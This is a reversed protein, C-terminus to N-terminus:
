VMRAIMIRDPTMIITLHDDTWNDKDVVLWAQYKGSPRKTKLYQKMTKLVTHPDPHKAKLIIVNVQNQKIKAIEQFYERETVEGETSLIFLNKYRRNGVARKQSSYRSM